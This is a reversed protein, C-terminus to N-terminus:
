SHLLRLSMLGSFRKLRSSIGKKVLVFLHEYIIDIFISQLEM